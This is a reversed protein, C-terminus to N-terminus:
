FWGDGSDLSVEEEDSIDLRRTHRDLFVVWIGFVSTYLYLYWDLNVHRVYLFLCIRSWWWYECSWWWLWRQDILELWSVITQISGTIIVITLVIIYIHHDNVYWHHPHHDFYSLTWWFILIIILIHHHDFDFYSSSWFWFIIIITMVISGHPMLLPPQAATSWIWTLYLM